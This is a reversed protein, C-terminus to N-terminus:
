NMPFYAMKDENMNQIFQFGKVQNYDELYDYITTDHKPLPTHKALNPGVNTFLNNFGNAIHEKKSIINNNKNLIRSM